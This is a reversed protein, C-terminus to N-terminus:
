RCVKSDRVHCAANDPDIKEENERPKEYGREQKLLALPIALDMVWREIEPAREPEKGCERDEERNDCDRCM